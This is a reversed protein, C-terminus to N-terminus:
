FKVTIGGAVTFVNGKITYDSLSPDSKDMTRSPLHWYQMALDLTVPVKIVGLPDNFTYGFGWSFVHRDTDLYNSTAYQNPVPSPEYFYGARLALADSLKYEVGVRPIVTDDWKPTPGGRYPNRYSSWKFWSVDLSTLLRPTWNYSVGFNHQQPMFYANYELLTNLPIDILNSGPISHTVVNAYVPAVDLELQGRFSYGFRLNDAPKILVGAIPAIETDVELDLNATEARPYGLNIGLGPTGARNLLNTNGSIIFRVGAGISVWKWREPQLSLGAVLHLRDIYDKYRYWHPTSPDPDYVRYVSQFNDPSSLILGFRSHVPLTGEFAEDLNFAMAIVPANLNEPGRSQAPGPGGNMKLSPSSYIYGLSMEHANLQALGAPNYYVAFVDDAVATYANGMSMARYGIGYMDFISARSKLPLTLLILFGLLLALRRQGKSNMEIRGSCKM